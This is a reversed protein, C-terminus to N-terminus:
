ASKEAHKEIISRDIMLLLGFDRLKLIKPHFFIVQLWDVILAPRLLPIYLYVRLNLFQTNKHVITELDPVIGSNINYNIREINKLIQKNPKKKSM